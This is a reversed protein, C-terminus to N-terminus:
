KKRPLLLTFTARLKWSPGVDPSEVYDGIGVQYAAPFPGFKALKTYMFIIPITWEEGSPAEWNTTAESNITFTEARKNTYALFPQTFMQSVDAVDSDGADAFGWIQNWLVGYTWGGHQRLIVFTPGGSWTESGLAPDAGTPLSLAPGIGWIFKKTNSPSFFVSGLIDGMGFTASEGPTLPPQGLVPIITRVILNWEKNLTFPVVPQINLLFQTDDDSGFGANWNAQFPVSVLDSVPNNLKKALDAAEEAGGAAPAPAEGWATCFALITVTAALLFRVRTTRM